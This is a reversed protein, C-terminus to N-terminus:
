GGMCGFKCGRLPIGHTVPLMPIGARAYDDRKHIALAWFHPPTWAFIILMLLLPEPTIQGTIAVWGM